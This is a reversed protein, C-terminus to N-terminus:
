ALGLDLRSKKLLFFSKGREPNLGCIIWRIAEDSYTAIRSQTLFRNHSASVPIITNCLMANKKKTPLLSTINSTCSSKGSESTSRCTQRGMTM